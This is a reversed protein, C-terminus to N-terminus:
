RHKVQGHLTRSRSRVPPREVIRRIREIREDTVLLAAPDDALLQEVPSAPHIDIWAHDGFASHHAEVICLPCTVPPDLVDPEEQYDDDDVSSDGVLLMIEGPVAVCLREIDDFHLTALRYVRQDRDLLRIWKLVDDTAAVAMGVEGWRSVLFHAGAHFALQEDVQKAVLLDAYM